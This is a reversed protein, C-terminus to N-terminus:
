CTLIYTLPLLVSKYGDRSSRFLCEPRETTIWDPLWGWVLSWSEDNLVESDTDVIIKRQYNQKTEVTSQKRVGDISQSAGDHSSTGGQSAVTLYGNWSSLLKSWSALQISFADHFWQAKEEPSLTCLLVSIHTHLPTDESVAGHISYIKLASLALRYLVKPGEVLFM